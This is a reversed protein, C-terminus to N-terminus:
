LNSTKKEPYKITPNFNTYEVYARTIIKARLLDLKIIYKLIQYIFWFHNKLLAKIGNKKNQHAENRYKYKYFNLRCLNTEEDFNLAKQIKRKHIVKSKLSMYCTYKKSLRSTYESDDGWIFYEKYPLGEKYIIDTSICVSVFTAAKIKVLGEDSKDYWDAYGNCNKELSITPTNMAIDNTGIVKSCIFGSDPNREYSDIITELATESCIVDDDMIWCYKYGNEAVYKMGSFFGGAGGLNEQNITIIDNQNTLWNLTNDTSGNNVVIIQLKKFTQNRLSSIVEKLLECRNYTVVVVGVIINNGM